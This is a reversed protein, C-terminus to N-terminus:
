WRRTNYFHGDDDRSQKATALLRTDQGGSSVERVQYSSRNGYWPRQAKM